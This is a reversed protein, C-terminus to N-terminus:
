YGIAIALLQRPLGQFVRFELCSKRLLICKSPCSQACSISVAEAQAEERQVVAAQEELFKDPKGLAAVASLGGAYGATVTLELPWRLCIEHGALLHRKKAVQTDLGARASDANATGPHHLVHPHDSQCHSTHQWSPFFPCLLSNHWFHFM